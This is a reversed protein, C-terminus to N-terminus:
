QSFWGCGLTIVWYSTARTQTTPKNHFSAADWHSLGTVLQVLSLLKTRCCRPNTNQEQCLRPTRHPLSLRLSPWISSESIKRVAHAWRNSSEQPGCFHSTWQLRPHSKPGRIKYAAMFNSNAPKMKPRRISISKPVGQGPYSARHLGLRSRYLVKEQPFRLLSPRHLIGGV